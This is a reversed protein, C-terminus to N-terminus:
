NGKIKPTHQNNERLKTEKVCVIHFKNNQLVLELEAAKSRLGDANWQLVSIGATFNEKELHSTEITTGGVKSVHDSRDRKCEESSWRFTKNTYNQAHRTATNVVSDCSLPTTNKATTGKCQLCIAVFPRPFPVYYQYYLEKTVCYQNQLQNSPHPLNQPNTQNRSSPKSTNAPTPKHSKNFDQLQILRCDRVNDTMAM